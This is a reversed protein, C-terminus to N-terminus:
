YETRSSQITLNAQATKQRGFGCDNGLRYGNFPTNIDIESSLNRGKISLASDIRGLVIDPTGPVFRLSTTPLGSRGAFGLPSVRGFREM